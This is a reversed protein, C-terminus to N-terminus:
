RTRARPEAPAHRGTKPAPRTLTRRRVPPATILDRLTNTSSWTFISDSRLMARIGAAKERGIEQGMRDWIAQKRSRFGSAADRLAEASSAPMPDGPRARLLNQYEEDLAQEPKVPVVKDASKLERLLPLAQEIDRATLKLALMQRLLAIDRTKKAMEPSYLASLNQYVQAVAYNQFADATQGNVFVRTNGNSGGRQQVITVRGDDGVRTEVQVKPSQLVDTEVHVEPIQVVNTRRGFTRRRPLM